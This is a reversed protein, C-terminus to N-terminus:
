LVYLASEAYYQIAAREARLIGSVRNGYLLRNASKAGKVPHPVRSHRVQNRKADVQVAIVKEEPKRAPKSFVPTRFCILVIRATNNTGNQRPAMLARRRTRASVPLASVIQTAMSAPAAQQSPIKRSSGLGMRM